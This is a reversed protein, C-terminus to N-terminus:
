RVSLLRTIRRVTPLRRVLGRVRIRRRALEMQGDARADMEALLPPTLPFNAGLKMGTLIREGPPTRAARAFRAEEEAAQAAEPEAPEDRVPPLSAEAPEDKPEDAAVPQREAEASHEPM